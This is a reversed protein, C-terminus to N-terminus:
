AKSQAKIRAVLAKSPEKVAAGALRGAVEDTYCGDEGRIFLPTIIRVDLAGGRRLVCEFLYADQAPDAHFFRLSVLKIDLGPLVSLLEPLRFPPLILKLWGRHKLVYCAAAMFDGIGGHLEIHAGARELNASPRRAGEPFYPPNFLVLDAVHPELADRHDRLDLERAEVNELANLTINERLHEFLQPQREIAVVRWSPERSAISLSVAGQGAGLEYIVPADEGLEPLDTSLLLADLGFRYGKRSQRIKLRDSIVDITHQPRSSNM